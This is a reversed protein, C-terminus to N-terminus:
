EHEAGAQVRRTLAGAIRDQSSRARMFLSATTLGEQM